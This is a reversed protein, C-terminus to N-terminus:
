FKWHKQIKKKKFVLFFLFGFDSVLDTTLFVSTGLTTGIQWKQPTETWMWGLQWLNFNLFETNWNLIHSSIEGGM